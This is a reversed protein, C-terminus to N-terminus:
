SSNMCSDEFWLTTSNTFDMPSVMLVLCAANMLVTLSLTEMSTTDLNHNPSFIEDESTTGVTLTLCLESTESYTLSFIMLTTTVTLLDLSILIQSIFTKSETSNMDLCMHIQVVLELEEM